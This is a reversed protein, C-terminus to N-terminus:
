AIAQLEVILSARLTENTALVEPDTFGLKPYIRNICEANVRDSGVRETAAQFAKMMEDYTAVAPAAPAAPLAPASGPMTFTPAAPAAEQAAPAEPAPRKLFEPIAMPDAEQAMPPAAPVPQVTAAPQANDAKLYDWEYADIAKADAGKRKKWAGKATKTKTAAHYDPHWPVGRDDLPASSNHSMPAPKTLTPAIAESNGGNDVVAQATEIFRQILSASQEDTVEMTLTIKPM